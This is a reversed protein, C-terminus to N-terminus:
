SKQPRYDKFEELFNKLMDHGHETLLSPTSSYAKSPMNKTAYAWSKAM